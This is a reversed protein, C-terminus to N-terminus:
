VMRINPERPPVATMGGCLAYIFAYKEYAFHEKAYAEAKRLNTNAENMKAVLESKAIEEQSMANVIRMRQFHDPGYVVAAQEQVYAVVEEYSPSQNFDM